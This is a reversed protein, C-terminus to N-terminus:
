QVVVTLTATSTVSASGEAAATVTITYTGATTGPNPPPPPPGSSGGGGGCAAVMGAMAALLLLMAMWGQCRRRTRAPIGFLILFALATGGAAYWNRHPDPKPVLTATAPATTSITLTATAATAATISVPTTSGFSVSPLDTAGAPSATVRATLDVKGTFGGAPTVTIKATNGTTAGPARITVNAATASISPPANQVMLMNSSTTAAYDTDGSYSATLFVNGVPFTNAPVTVNATGATLATAASKYSGFSLAITGTPASFPAIANVTLKVSYPQSRDVTPNSPNFTLSPIGMITVTGSATGSGYTADGTYNFTLTNPGVNLSSWYNFSVSGDVLAYPVPIGTVSINGTPVPDGSPGSISITVPVNSISTNVPATPLTLAIKPTVTGSSNVQLASYSSSTYYTNDGSYQAYLTLPGLPLTNAPITVGAAGKAITVPASTWATQYNATQASFTITGTPAPYTGSGAINVTLKLSQNSKISSSAPVFTLTPFVGNVSIVAGDDDIAAAYNGDGSYSATIGHNNIPLSKTTFTASASALSTATGATGTIPANAVRVGNDIITITGTPAAGLSDLFRSDSNSGFTVTIVVPDGANYTTQDTKTTLASLAPQVAFDVAASTNALFSADGPFVATLKDNGGPLLATQLEAVGDSALTASGLKATGSKFTIKGTAAGNPNSASASNGYPQADLLYIFGYYPASSQQGTQPDFYGRVNLTTSSGEPSVTVAIANSDSAAYTPSGGYHANVNYSGGPLSTTTGTAVGSALAFAGIGDNNPLVAPNISDVLGVTGAPTGGSGTVTANVIVAQGHTMNLASTGGNLTLSSSTATLTATSWDSVMHSADVSGLGTAEDYGTAADFGSLYFTNVLTVAKCGPTGNVCEVSNDGTAVDHFVDSYKTRALKYLTYDAQGLRSGAKQEALALMGAFAPASASTGGVGTVIFDNGTTPQVCNPAPLGTSSYVELDTCLGWTAGYFGDGALFSVDPLNRGTSDKAIGAQWAPLRYGGSCAGASSTACSSVGGGAGVINDSAQYHSAFSIPVNQLISTNPYTSDNWPEEPIYKLASRHNALSNTVDVYQTFSTPFNSNLVDFDTGGVAINFPTSALGNVALGYQAATEIHPNDCGASGSDGTSVTVSIGQAAAQEWLNYIFQNGSAGQAAECRGFSVNLIDVQNDDVARVIGLFLGANLYTNQATYLIVKAGPAIGGSIQTDLYAELADGNEGPDDGDVIVTTPNPPLGFTKRYNANQSVDINSDGAIGITVGTGDYRTGSFSPNLSTPTDYVTAADAPFLFVYYGNTTNGLTYEPEIRNTAPNYTGMPGKIALSKPAFDNLQALGAVVPELAAPIRPNTANAWHPEGNVVYSHISTAFASQVQGVTGSFEIAMRSKAVKNVTFGQGQLWTQVTALDADSVGFRAGFEDPTVWKKFNPSSADQLSQLYTDLAAEQQSSRRLVLLMRRAPMSLPAPGRDYRPMALPHVNGYLTVRQSEDIAHAIRPRAPM